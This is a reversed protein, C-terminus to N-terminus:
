RKRLALAVRGPDAGAAAVLLPFSGRGALFARAGNRTPALAHPDDADDLARRIVGAALRAYPDLPAPEDDVDDM